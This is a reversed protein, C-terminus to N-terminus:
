YEIGNILGWDDKPGKKGRVSYDGEGTRVCKRGVCESDTM